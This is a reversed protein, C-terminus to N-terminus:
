TADFDTIKSKPPPAISILRGHGNGNGPAGLTPHLVTAAHALANLIRDLQVQMDASRRIQVEIQRRQRQIEIHQQEIVRRQETMEARVSLKTGM